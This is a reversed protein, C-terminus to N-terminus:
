VNHQDKASTTRLNAETSMWAILMLTQLFFIKPHLAACAFLKRGFNHELGDQEILCELKHM